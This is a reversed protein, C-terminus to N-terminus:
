LVGLRGAGANAVIAGLANTAADVVLAQSFFDIGAFAPQNPLPWATTAFGTASTAVGFVADPSAFLTCGTMGLPALSTPLPGGSWSTSSLGITIAAPANAPANRLELVFTSGLVPRTAAARDLVPTGATGACGVGFRQWSAAAPATYLWTQDRLGFTSVHLGGFLVTHDRLVDYTMASGALAAPAPARVDAVWTDGAALWSYIPAPQGGQRVLVDAQWDFAMAFSEAAPPETGMTSQLWDTGNWIWTDRFTVLQGLGGTTGGHLLIRGRGPDTVMGLNWRAAPAHLPQLQTWTAGNWRWTEQNEVQNGGVMAGGGFLVMGGVILDGGFGALRRPSPSSAPTAATWQSGDFEWTDGLEGTSSWGGFLVVRRRGFDYGLAGCCRAPPAVTPQRRTWLAGDWEWTDGLVPGAWGGFLVSVGRQLDFALMPNSRASPRNTPAAQVWGGQALATSALLPIALARTLRHATAMIPESCASGALARTPSRPASRM